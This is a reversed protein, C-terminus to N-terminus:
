KEIQIKHSKSPLVGVMEIEFPNGTKAKTAPTKVKKKM